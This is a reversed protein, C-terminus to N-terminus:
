HLLVYIKSYINLEQKSKLSGTLFWQTKCFNNKNKNQKSVFVILSFRISYSSRWKNSKRGINNLVYKLNWTTISVKFLYLPKKNSTFFCILYKSWIILYNVKWWQNLFLYFLSYCYFQPLSWNLIIRFTSIM